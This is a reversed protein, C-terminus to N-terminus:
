SEVVEMKKCYSVKIEFTLMLIIKDFFYFNISM